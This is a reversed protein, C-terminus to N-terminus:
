LFVIGTLIFIPTLIPLSWKLIYGLFSPMAIGGEEAISKVMFNPANGIYTNAGMFVAGMSVAELFLEHNAILDLIAQKEGVGPSFHGLAMNLFTLYTPANDLFSSLVGTLWFYHWPESAGGVLIALHGRDGAKLMALAPIMTVFIAAFLIAVERMPEWSFGNNRRLERSTLKLSVLGAAITLAERVLDQYEFHIAGLHISGLKFTGSFLVSGLICLILLFNFAGEVRFKEHVGGKATRAETAGDRAYYRSDVIFFLALLLMSVFAFPLFLKFTWFFPVGRLFGLFLPPDGLPTLSGGVNAVLFIFFVIIHKRHRRRENARMLPRILLMAAGTTGMFSAIMTGIMLLATNFAPTGSFTGRFVIGGSVTYLGWLLILFPVYDLLIIHLIEMVAQGKYAAIFPVAFVVGWALSVMPYKKHWFHPALLPFLSISLLIGAFPVASWLPLIEGLGAGESAFARASTFLLFLAASFAGPRRSIM